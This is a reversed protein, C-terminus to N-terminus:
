IGHSRRDAVVVASALCIREIDVVGVLVAACRGCINVLVVPEAVAIHEEDDVVGLDVIHIVLILESKVSDSFVGVGCPAYGNHMVIDVSRSVVGCIIVVLQKRSYVARKDVSKLYVDAQGTVLM